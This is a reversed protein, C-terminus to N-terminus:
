SFLLASREFLWYASCVGISYIVVQALRDQQSAQTAIWRRIILALVSVALIFILQGLEVGINFFLLAQVKMASPLGLEQLVVAFGFGHLLGFVASVSM